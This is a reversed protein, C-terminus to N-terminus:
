YWPIKCMHGNSPKGRKAVWNWKEYMIETFFIYVVYITFHPAIYKLIYNTMYIM